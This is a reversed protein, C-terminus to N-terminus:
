LLKKELYLSTYFHHWIVISTSTENRVIRVHRILLPSQMRLCNRLSKTADLNELTTVGSSMTGQAVLMRIIAM